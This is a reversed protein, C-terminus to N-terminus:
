GTRRPSRQSYRHIAMGLIHHGSIPHNLCASRETRIRHVSHRFGAPSVPSSEPVVLTWSRKPRSPALRLQAAQRVQPVNGGHATCSPDRRPDRGGSVTPGTAVFPRSVAPGCEGGGCASPRHDPRPALDDQRNRIRGSHDGDARGSPRRRDSRNQVAERRRAPALRAPQEGVIMWGMESSCTLGPRSRAAIHGGISPSPSM